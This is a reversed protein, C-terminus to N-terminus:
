VFAEFGNQEMFVDNDTIAIMADTAEVPYSFNNTAEVQLTLGGDEDWDYSVTEFLVAQKFSDDL